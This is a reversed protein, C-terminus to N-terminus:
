GREYERAIGYLDLDVRLYIRRWPRRRFVIGFRMRQMLRVDFM